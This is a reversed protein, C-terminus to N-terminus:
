REQTAELGAFSIAEVYNEMTGIDLWVGKFLYSYVPEYSLIYRILEGLNLTPQTMALNRIHRFVEPPFIYLGTSVLTTAPYKPKETIQSIQRGDRCLEIVGLHRAQELSKVNYVGVLTYGAYASIFGDLNESFYNDGCIVMLPKSDKAVKLAEAIAVLAGSDNESISWLMGSPLRDIIHDVVRKNGLPLFAKRTDDTLPKLREGKGGTLIVARM